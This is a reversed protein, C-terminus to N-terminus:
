KKRYINVRKMWNINCFPFMIICDDCLNDYKLWCGNTQDCHATLEWNKTWNFHRGNVTEEIARPESVKRGYIKTKLFSFFIVFYFQHTMMMAITPKTKESTSIVNTFRIKHKKFWVNHLRLLFFRNAADFLLSIFPCSAINGYVHSLLSLLESAIFQHSFVIFIICFSHCINTWRMM